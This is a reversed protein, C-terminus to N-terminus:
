ILRVDDGAIFNPTEGRLYRAVNQAGRRAATVLADATM